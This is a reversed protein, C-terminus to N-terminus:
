NMPPLPGPRDDVSRRQQRFCAADYRPSRRGPGHGAGAPRCAHASRPSSKFCHQTAPDIRRLGGPGAFELGERLAQQVADTAVSGAREVALKWLHILCYAAEMPDSTVRDYGFERRFRGVWRANAEGPESQFYSWAAMHGTSEEPAISRLEDEGVSTSIVPLEDAKIGAAHLAAFFAVNSDGNVTSLVANARSSKVQDVIGGFNESGLPVYTVGAPEIDRAALYKTVVYNATRPFVYDSGLLFIKRREGGAPSFLWDIAPLIQQNPVAGGYVVLPSSENGEYQVPYSLLRQFEECVPIVSRRGTSTWCGFLAAARDQECLRRARKAFLDASRSKPDPSRIELQRGLVGGAANVERHGLSRCRPAIDRQDGPHGDPLAPPGPHDAPLGTTVSFLRMRRSELFHNFQRLAEAHIIEESVSTPQFDLLEEQFADVRITGEEPIIGKQQLPCAYRIVYRTYDRLLWRLNQGYPDPYRSVDEYLASLAAAERTVNTGADAVNQYATVAILGLLLGYFVGFCSLVYGVIDNASTTYKVFQRLIPRLFICGLWYFGVFAGVFLLALQQTPLTYLGYWHQPLASLQSVDVPRHM